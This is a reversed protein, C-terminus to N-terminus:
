AAGSSRQPVSAHVFSSSLHHLMSSAAATPLRANGREMMTTQYGHVRGLQFYEMGRIGGIGEHRAALLM